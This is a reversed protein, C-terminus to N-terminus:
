SMPGSAPATVIPMVILKTVHRLPTTLLAPSALRCPIAANPAPPAAKNTSLPWRELQRPLSM